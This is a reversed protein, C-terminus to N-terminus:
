EASARHEDAAVDAADRDEYEDAEEGCTCEWAWGWTHDYVTTVHSSRNIDSM